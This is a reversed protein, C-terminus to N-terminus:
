IFVCIFSHQTLKQLLLIKWAMKLLMDCLTNSYPNKWSFDCHRILPILTSRHLQLSYTCCENVTNSFKCMTFSNFQHELIHSTQFTLYMVAKGNSQLGFHQVKAQKAKIMWMPAKQTSIQKELNTTRLCELRSKIDFCLRFAAYTEYRKMKNENFPVVQLEVTWRKQWVMFWCTMTIKHPSNKQFTNRIKQNTHVQNRQQAILICKLFLCWCVHWFQRLEDTLCPAAKGFTCQCMIEM